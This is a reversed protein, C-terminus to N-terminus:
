IITFTLVNTYTGALSNTHVSLSLNINQSYNGTGYGIGASMVTKSDSEAATGTMLGATGANVGEGSGSNVTISGPSVTLDIYPFTDVGIAWKDGTVYTAPDFNVRVGKTGIAVFTGTTLNSQTEASTVNFTATGVSGGNAITIDYKKIPSSTGFTGDYDGATSLTNNSGIILIPAGIITFNHSTVSATWGPSSPRDDNVTVNTLSGTATQAQSTSIVISTLSLSSPVTISLAAKTIKPANLFLLIIIIGLVLIVKPERM